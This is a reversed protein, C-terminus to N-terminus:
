DPDWPCLCWTCKAFDRPAAPVYLIRSGVKPREVCSFRRSPGGEGLGRIILGLLSECSELVLMEDPLTWRLTWNRLVTQVGDLASGFESSRSDRASPKDHAYAQLATALAAFAEYEKASMLSLNRGGVDYAPRRELEASVKRALLALFGLDASGDSCLANTLMMHQELSSRQVVQGFARPVRLSGPTRLVDIFIENIASSAHFYCLRKLIREARQRALVAAREDEERKVLELLQKWAALSAEHGFVRM